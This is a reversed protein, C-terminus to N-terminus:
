PLRSHRMKSTEPLLPMFELFLRELSNDHKRMKQPATLIRGIVRVRHNKSAAIMTREIRPM